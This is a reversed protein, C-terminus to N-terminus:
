AFIENFSYGSSLIIQIQEAVVEYENCVSKLIKISEPLGKLAQKITHLIDVRAESLLLPYLSKISEVAYRLEDEMLVQEYADEIKEAAHTVAVDAVIGGGRYVSEVDGSSTDLFELYIEKRRKNNKSLESNKRITAEYADINFPQGFNIRGKLGAYIIESAYEIKKDPNDSLSLFLELVETPLEDYGMVTGFGFSHLLAM